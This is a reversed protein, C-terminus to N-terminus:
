VQHEDFQEKIAAVQSVRLLNEEFLRYIFRNVKEPHSVFFEVASDMFAFEKEAREAEARISDIPNGNM